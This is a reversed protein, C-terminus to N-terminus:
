TNPTPTSTPLSFSLFRTKSFVCVFNFLSFIFEVHMFQHNISTTTYRNYVSAISTIVLFSTSVYNQIEENEKGSELMPGM